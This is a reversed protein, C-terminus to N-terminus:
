AGPWRVINSQRCGGVCGSREQIAQQDSAVADAAAPSAVEIVDAGNPASVTADQLIEVILGTYSTNDYLVHQNVAVDGVVVAPAKVQMVEGARLHMEAVSSGKTGLAAGLHECASWYVTIPGFFSGPGAMLARHMQPDTEMWVTSGVLTSAPDTRRDFDICYGPCLQSTVAAATTWGQGGEARYLRAVDNNVGLTQAAQQPTAPFPPLAECKLATSDSVVKNYIWPALAYTAGGFGLVMALVAIHRQRRSARGRSM